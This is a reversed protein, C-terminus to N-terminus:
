RKFVRFQYVGNQKIIDIEYDRVYYAKLGNLLFQYNKNQRRNIDIVVSNSRELIENAKDIIDKFNKEKIVEQLNTMKFIM